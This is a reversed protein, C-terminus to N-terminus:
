NRNQLSQQLASLQQSVSSGLAQLGAVKSDMAQYQARLRVERQALRNELTDQNKQNSRVSRNLGDTRSTISGNTNLWEGALTDLRKAFGISNAIGVTGVSSFLRALRSPDSNAATWKTQDLKLNGDTQISVGVDSLSSYDGAQGNFQGFVTSRLRQLVSIAANDGQLPSQTKAGEVYKTQDKLLKQLDNYASVFSSISKQMAATDKTIAVNVTTATETRLNFTVGDIVNSAKNSASSVSVGNVNFLANQATQLPELNKGTGIALSPVFSLRSLGLADANGGDSDTTTIQIANQAGTDKSNLVLRAGSGTNVITASIGADAANIANRISNLSGDGVNVSVVSRGPQLSFAGTGGDISGVSIELSGTGVVALADAFTNSALQAGKALQSVTLAYNGETANGSATASISTETSTSAQFIQWKEPTSLTRAADQFASIGSAVRGYASISSQLATQDTKLRDLPKREVAMLQTVISNIDIGSGVGSASIAM